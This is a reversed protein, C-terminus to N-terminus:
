RWAGFDETEVKAIRLGCSNQGVDLLALRGEQYAAGTAMVLTVNGPTTFTCPDTTSERGWGGRGWGRSNFNCWLEATEGAEVSLMSSKVTM